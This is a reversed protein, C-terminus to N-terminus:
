TQILMKWSADGNMWHKLADMPSPKSIFYGQGVDCGMHALLKLTEMDEVGEAVVLLDFNHSMDIISQVIKRDDNSNLMGTVFSKDIKLEKVPLKRLYALSSYGTGFDDISLTIGVDDFKKLIHLSKEPHAMISSETVELVLNEPEVGWISMTTLITDVIEADNLLAASLNVSLKVGNAHMGSEIYQRMTTNLTWTTFFSMLDRSKEAVPIFIEPSMVGLTPSTWRVLAEVGCVKEEQLNVQPQYVMKLEDSKIANRFEHALMIPASEEEYCSFTYTECLNGISQAHRLALAARQTLLEPDEAHDPFFAIGIKADVNLYQDEVIFPEDLLGLIKNAALTAHGQNMVAPLMVAFDSEGIQVIRDADRLMGKMREVFQGLIMDGVKYGYTITIDWLQDINVILLALRKNDAGCSAINKGLEDLYLTRELHIALNTSM